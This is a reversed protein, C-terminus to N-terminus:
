INNIINREAYWIDEATTIKINKYKGEIFHVPTDSYVEVVMSDDTIFTKPKEMFRDYAKRIVSYEFAQPTQACWLTSRDPTQIINNDDGVIKITDKVRVGTVCANYRVAGKISNEIIDNDIMPRAGDHILVYDCRAIKLGNYVSDYREKGGAVVSTVKSLGFKEVITRCFDVDEYSTVLIIEDVRSKQFANLSYWILPMNDIEMFQKKVNSKMRSGRGAALVIASVRM